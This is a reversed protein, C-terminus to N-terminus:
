DGSSKIFDGLVATVLEIAPSRCLTIRVYDGLLSGAEHERVLIGRERCFSKFERCRSGLKLLVFNAEGAIFTLKLAELCGVLREKSARIEELASALWHPEQLLTEVAVATVSSFEYLSKTRFLLDRIEPAAALYGARLGALGLAKSFSRAVVLNPTTQVRGLFSKQRSFEVYAEDLLLVAGVCEVRELVRDIEGVTMLSGTAGNPNAIVVLKCQENIQDCLEDLPCLFSSDLSVGHFEGGMINAYVEYMGYTPVVSVVGDGPEILAEFVTRLAGECGSTMLLCEEPLGSWAALKKYAGGLEPYASFHDPTIKSLVSRTFEVGINPALENGDLRLLGLRGCHFHATREIQRLHPRFRPKM